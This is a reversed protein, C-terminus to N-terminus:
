KCVIHYNGLDDAQFSFKTESLFGEIFQCRIDYYKSVLGNQETWYDEHICMRRRYIVEDSSASVLENVHDCPMGDLLMDNMKQYVQEASDFCEPNSKYIQVGLENVAKLIDDMAAPKSDTIVTVAYSLRREVISVKDQLWGHINSEDIMEELPKKEIYGCRSDMDQELNEVYHKENNLTLITEVMKEQLEIKNFLWYHIPGLFASM